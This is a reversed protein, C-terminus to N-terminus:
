NDRLRYFMYGALERELILRGTLQRAIANQDNALLLYGANYTQMITLRQELTADDSFFLRTDDRRQAYDDLFPNDHIVPVVTCGTVPAIVWSEEPPAMVVDGPEIASAIPRFTNYYGVTSHGVAGLHSLCAPVQLLLCVALLAGTIPKLPRLKSGPGTHHVLLSAVGLHLFFVVYIVYRGLVSSQLTVLNLLYIALAAVFGLAIWSRPRRLLAPLLFILGIMAPATRLFFLEYFRAHEGAFAYSAEAAEVPTAGGINVVAGFVPFCPWAFALLLGALPVAVLATKQKLTAQTHTLAILGLTLILFTGTLPHCLFVLAVLAVCGIMRPPSPLVFTPSGELEDEDSHPQVEPVFRAIALLAIPFAFWYPYVSTLPLLGLHYFGSWQWPNFWLGLLIAALLLAHRRDGLVRAALQQCAIAFLLANLGGAVPLLTMPHTGILGAISGWLLHYPTFLHTPQDLALYPNPPNLVDQAFARMAALHEWYDSTTTATMLLVGAFNFFVFLACCVAYTKPSTLLQLIPRNEEPM